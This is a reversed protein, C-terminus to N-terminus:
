DRSALRAVIARAVKEPEVRYDGDRVERALRELRGPSPAPGPRARGGAPDRLLEQPFRM